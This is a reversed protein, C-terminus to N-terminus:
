MSDVSLIGKIKMLSEVYQERNLRHPIRVTLAITFSSVNTGAKEVEFLDVICGDAKLKRMLEISTGGEAAEVQLVMYRSHKYVRAEVIPLIHLGSLLILTAIIAGDVFGIGVALGICACVWIGAASTLGKVQHRSVIISGAGLFGVRSVVQSAMRAVDTTGQYRMEMYQGTMVVMAAGLCVAADTRAGGGRRKAGRDIGILAGLVLAAVMRLIVNQETWASLDAFFMKM